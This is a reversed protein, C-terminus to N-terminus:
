VSGFSDVVRALVETPIGRALRDEPAPRDPRVLEWAEDGLLARASDPDSALTLGRRTDLMGDAIARLRPVLRFHLDFSGAIGLAVAQEIRGLAPPLQRETATPMRRVGFRTEVPYARRLLELALVLAGACLVLAYIRVAPELRGPVFAAVVVLALSPLALFKLSRAVTATV